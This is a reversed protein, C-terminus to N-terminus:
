VPEKRYGQLYKEGLLNKEQEPPNKARDKYFSRVPHILVGDKQNPM